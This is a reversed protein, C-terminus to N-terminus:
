LHKHSFILCINTMYNCVGSSYCIVCNPIKTASRTITRGWRHQWTSWSPWNWSKERTQNWITWCVGQLAPFPFCLEAHSMAVALICNHNGSFSMNLCSKSSATAPQQLVACYDGGGHLNEKRQRNTSPKTAPNCLFTVWVQHSSSFHAVFSSM